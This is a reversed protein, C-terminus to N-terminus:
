QDKPKVGQYVDAESGLTEAALTTVSAAIMEIHQKAKAIAVAKMQIQELSHLKKANQEETEIIADAQEQLKSM